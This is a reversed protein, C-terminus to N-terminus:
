VIEAVLDYDHAATFTRTGAALAPTSPQSLDGWDVSVTFTDATGPDTFSANVTLTQHDTVSAPSLALASVTPAVNGVAM